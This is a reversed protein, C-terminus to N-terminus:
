PFRSDDVSSLLMDLSFYDVTGRLNGHYDPCKKVHLRRRQFYTTRHKEQKVDMRYKIMLLMYVTQRGPSPGPCPASQSVNPEQCQIKM